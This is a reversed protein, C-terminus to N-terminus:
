SLVGVLVGLMVVAVGGILVHMPTMRGPLWRAAMVSDTYVVAGGLVLLLGAFLLVSSIIGPFVVTVLIAALIIAVMRRTFVWSPLLAGWRREAATIVADVRALFRGTEPAAKTEPAATEVKAVQRPIPTVVPTQPKAKETKAKPARIRPRKRANVTRGRLEIEFNEADDIELLIQEGEAAMRYGNGTAELHVEELSWEGIPHDGAEIVIRDGDLKVTAPLGRRDGITRLSASFTGM